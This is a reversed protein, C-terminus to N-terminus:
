SLQAPNESDLWIIADADFQVAVHRGPVLQDAVIAAPAVKTTFTSRGAVVTAILLGTSKELLLRTLTGIVLNTTASPTGPAPGVKIKDSAVLAVSGDRPPRGARIVQGDALKKVVGGNGDPEWPGSIFSTMHTRSVRGAFFHLVEDCMEYLWHWDHSAVLLTTGWEKRARLAADKILWASDADVNATPEDLLLVKPKLVLRAALAVRQAEGGSLEHWPRKRFNGAELGVWQLAQEIREALHSIDQRIKLGYAINDAVSRRLLYPEQTLLTIRERRVADAFPELREDRFLIQGATPAEIFALLKLFTSKGSGNPGILGTIAASQIALDPIALVPHRNYRHQLHKIQYAPPTM